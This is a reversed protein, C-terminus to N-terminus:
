SRTRNQGPSGSQCGSPGEPTCRADECHLDSRLLGWRLQCPKTQPGLGIGERLQQYAVDRVDGLVHVGGGALHQAVPGELEHDHPPAHRAPPEELEEEVDLVSTVDLPWLHTWRSHGVPSPDQSGRPSSPTPGKQLVKSRRFRTGFDRLHLDIPGLRVPELGLCLQPDVRQVALLELVPSHLPADQRMSQPDHTIRRVEVSVSSLCTPPSLRATISAHM